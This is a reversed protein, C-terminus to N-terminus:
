DATGRPVVWETELGPMVDNLADYDADYHLLTANHLRACGAIVLDPLSARRHQSKEALRAQAALAGSLVRRNIELLGFGSALRSRRQKYNATNAGYLTELDVVTCRYLRANEARLEQVRMAVTSKGLRKIVSTDLLYGDTM